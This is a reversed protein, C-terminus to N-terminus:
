IFALFQSRKPETALPTHMDNVMQLVRVHTKVSSQFRVQCLKKKQCLVQRLKKDDRAKFKTEKM